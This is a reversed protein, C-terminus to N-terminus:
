PVARLRPAVPLEGHAGSSRLADIALAAFRREAAARNPAPVSALARGAHLVLLLDDIVFDARLGGAVQARRALQALMGLLEARHASFAVGDPEASLFADVFGRNRGNLLTLREIVACLGRWADPDACGDIVIGRCERMEEALAAEILIRRTPFRRYLTAPGVGARRAVERMPIDIGREAFLERAAELLRDRNERADARLM